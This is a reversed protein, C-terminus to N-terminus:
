KIKYNTLVYKELYSYKKLSFHYVMQIMGVIGIGPKIFYYVEDRFLPEFDQWAMKYVICRFDGLPTTFLSDTSVCTYQTIIDYPVNSYNGLTSYYFVHGSVSEGKKAPCPFLLDNFTMVLSDKSIIGSYYFGENNQHVLKSGGYLVSYSDDLPQLDNSCLSMQYNTKNKNNTLQESPNLVIFGFRWLSSDKEAGTGRDLNYEKYIWYNGVGLPMLPEHEVPEPLVFNDNCGLMLSILVISIITIRRM